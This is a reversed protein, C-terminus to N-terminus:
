PNYGVIIQMEVDAASGNSVFIKDMQLGATDLANLQGQCYMHFMEMLIETETNAHVKYGLDPTGPTTEPYSAAKILVFAVDDIASVCALDVEVDSDGAEATHEVVIIGGVSLTKALTEPTWSGFTVSGSIQLDQM